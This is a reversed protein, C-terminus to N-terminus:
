MSPKTSTPLRGRQQQLRPNWFGWMRHLCLKRQFGNPKPFSMLITSYVSTRFVFPICQLPFHLEENTERSATKLYNPHGKDDFSDKKLDWIGGPISWKGKEHNISRKGLLIVMKEDEAKAWLLVGAGHYPIKM